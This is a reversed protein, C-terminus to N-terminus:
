SSTIMFFVHWIDFSCLEKASDNMWHRIFSLIFLQLSKMTCDSSICSISTLRFSTKLNSYKHLSIQQTLMLSKIFLFVLYADMMQLWSHLHHHALFLLAEYIKFNFWHHIYLIWWFRRWSILPNWLRNIRWCCHDEPVFHFLHCRWSSLPSHVTTFKHHILMFWHFFAVSYVIVLYGKMSIHRLTHLTTVARAFELVSCSRYPSALALWIPLLM